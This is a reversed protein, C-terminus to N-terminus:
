FNDFARKSYKVFLFYGIILFFLGYCINYLMMLFDPQMGYMLVKRMNMIIGSVPHVYLLWPVKEIFISEPILIPASWFGALVVLSWIHALDKFYAKVIALIFSFGLSIIMVTILLLPLYLVTFTPYIGVALCALFFAFIQFAFGLTTSIVLSIFLDTWAFQINSMMYQKGKFLNQAQQTTQAFFTWTIIGSFLYLAFNEQGGGRNLIFTFAFYYIAVRFLPNLLAWFLGLKSEYYRKEFDIKAILWIRELRNNGSLLNELSSVLQNLIM